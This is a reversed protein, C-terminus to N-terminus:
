RPNGPRRAPIITRWAAAGAAVVPASVGAILGLPSARLRSLMAYAAFALIAHRTFFKVLVWPRVVAGAQVAQVAGKIARYSVGALVGGGAVSLAMRRGQWALAALAMLLCALLADREFRRLV